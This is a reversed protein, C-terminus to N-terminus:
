SALRTDKTYLRTALIHRWTERLEYGGLRREYQSTWQLSHMIRKLQWTLVVQKGQLARHQDCRYGRILQQGAHNLMISPAGPGALETETRDLLKVEM